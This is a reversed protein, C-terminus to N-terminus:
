RAGRRLLSVKEEEVKGEVWWPIIGVVKWKTEEERYTRGKSQVM